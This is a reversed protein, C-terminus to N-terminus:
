ETEENEYAIGLIISRTSGAPFYGYKKFIRKLTKECTKKIENIVKDFDEYSILDESENNAECDIHQAHSCIITAAIDKIEQKTLKDM